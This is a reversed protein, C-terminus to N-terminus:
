PSEGKIHPESFDPMSKPAGQVERVAGVESPALSTGRAANIHGYTAQTKLSIHGLAQAIEVKSFNSAKMDSAVAHRLSYCTITNNLKPFARKAADRIAISFVAAPRKSTGTIKITTKGDAERTLNILAQIIPAANGVSWKMTRLPQGSYPTVKTGSINAILEENAIHLDVGKLLESPRCGTAAMTLFQYKWKLMRNCVVERWNASVNGARRKSSRPEREPLAAPGPTKQLAKVISALQRSKEIHPELIETRRDKWIGSRNAELLSDMEALLTGLKQKCVYLVAARRAYYTRDKKTNKAADWIGDLGGVAVLSEFKKNYDLITNPSLPTSKSTSVYTRALIITAGTESATAQLDIHNM